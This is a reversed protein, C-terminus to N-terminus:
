NTRLEKSRLAAELTKAKTDFFLGVGADVQLSDDGRGAGSFTDRDGGLDILVGLSPKGHYEFGGTDGQVQSGGGYVDRGAGDVFIAIGTQAAGGLGLNGIHYEDNGQDDFFYGIGEDWAMGTHAVSRCTYRDDGAADWRVAIGQHVGFGQSYRSGFNEDNGGDDYMLAFSFYYAGGQSFNGSQYRDDGDGLDILAAVGGAVAPRVGACYGQSAGHYCDPGSDGYVDPWHLDALYRDDGEGDVLASFGYGIGGGQAVAWATYEDDGDLDILLGVGCMGHGQGYDQMTYVDHGALDALMAFGFIGAGQGLRASTYEDKGAGDVLIAVGGVAYAPGPTTSAYVDNGRADFVISVLQEPDDAVAARGYRDHGGLDIVLAAPANYETRGTGGLVVLTSPSDGHFARVDGTFGPPPPSSTPPVNKLRQVLQDRFPPSVLRLLAAAVALNRARDTADRAMLKGTYRDVLEVQAPTAGEEARNAPMHTRYWAECFAAHQEFLLERAEEELGDLSEALVAHATGVYESLAELLAGGTLTEEQLALWLLHLEELGPDHTTASPIEFADRDLWAAIGPVLAAFDMETRARRPPTLFERLAAARDPVTWPARLGDIVCSPRNVVNTRVQPVLALHELVTRTEEEVGARATAREIVQWLVPRDPPAPRPAGASLAIWGLGLAGIRLIRRM